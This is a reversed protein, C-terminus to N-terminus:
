AYHLNVKGANGDYRRLTEKYGKQYVTHIDNLVTGDYMNIVERTYADSEAKLKKDFELDSPYRYEEKNVDTSSLYRAKGKQALMKPIDHNNHDGDKYRGTNEDTIEGKNADTKDGYTRTHVNRDGAKLPSQHHGGYGQKVRDGFITSADLDRM